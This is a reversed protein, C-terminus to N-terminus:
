GCIPKKNAEVRTKNYVSVRGIKFWKNYPDKGSMGVLGEVLLVPPSLYDEVGYARIEVPYLQSIAITNHLKPL